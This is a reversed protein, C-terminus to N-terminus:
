IAPDRPAQDARSNRAGTRIQQEACGPRAQIVSARLPHSRPRDRRAYFIRERAVDVRAQDNRHCRIRNTWRGDAVGGRSPREGLIGDRWRGHNGGRSHWIIDRAARELRAACTAPYGGFIVPRQRFHSNVASARRAGAKARRISIPCYAYFPALADNDAAVFRLAACM